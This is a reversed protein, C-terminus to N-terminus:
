GEICEVQKEHAIVKAPTAAGVAAGASPKSGFLGCRSPGPSVQTNVCALQM